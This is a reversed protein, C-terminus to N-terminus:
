LPFDYRIFGNYVAIKDYLRRAITNHKQTQWYFREAGQNRAQEAVYEILRRAIGQGRENPIVYLDQLYCVSARWVSDHFVYHALGVMRGSMCATVARVRDCQQLRQWAAEYEDDGIEDDYFKKYARTLQLWETKDAASLAKIQVM